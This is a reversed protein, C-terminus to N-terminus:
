EFMSAAVHKPLLRGDEPIKQIRRLNRSFVSRYPPKHLVYLLYSDTHLAGQASYFLKFSTIVGPRVLTFLLIYLPNFHTMYKLYVAMDIQIKVYSLRIWFIGSSPLSSGFCTAALMYFLATTCIQANHQNNRSRRISCPVFM